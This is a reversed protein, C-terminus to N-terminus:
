KESNIKCFDELILRAMCVEGATTGLEYAEELDHTKDSVKFGSKDQPLEVAAREKLFDILNSM